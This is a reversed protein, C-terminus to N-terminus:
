ALALTYNQSSITQSGPTRGRYGHHRKMKPHSTEVAFEMEKWRVGVAEATFDIEALIAAL